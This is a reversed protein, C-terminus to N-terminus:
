YAEAPRLLTHVAGFTSQGAPAAQYVRPRCQASYAELTNGAAAVGAFFLSDHDYAMAYIGSGGRTLQRLAAGDVPDVIFLTGGSVSIVIGGSTLKVDQPNIIAPTSTTGRTWRAAGAFAGVGALDCVLGCTQNSTDATGCWAVRNHDDIDVATISAASVRSYSGFPAGGLSYAKLQAGGSTAGGVVVFNSNTALDNIAAGYALTSFLTLAAGTDLYVYVNTGVAVCVVTSGAQANSCAIATATGAVGTDVSYSETLNLRDRASLFVNGGAGDDYAIYANDGACAVPAFSNAVVASADVGGTRLHRQLAGGGSTKSWLCEGDAALQSAAPATANGWLAVWPAYSPPLVVGLDDASAIFEQPSDFRRLVARGYMRFLWNHHEHAPVADAVYGALRLAAGPDVVDGGAAGEAWDKESAM